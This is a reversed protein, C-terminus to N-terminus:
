SRSMIPQLNAKANGSISDGIVLGLVIVACVIVLIAIPRKPSKNNPMM